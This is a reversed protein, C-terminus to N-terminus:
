GGQGLTQDLWEKFAAGAGLGVFAGLALACWWPEDPLLRSAFLVTGWGAASAPFCFRWSRWFAPRLPGLCFVLVFLIFVLWCQWSM